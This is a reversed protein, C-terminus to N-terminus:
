HLKCGKWVHPSLQSTCMHANPKGKLCACDEHLEPLLWRRSRREVEGNKEPILTRDQVWSGSWSIDRNRSSVMIKFLGFYPLFLPIALTFMFVYLTEIVIKTWYHSNILTRLNWTASIIVWVGCEYCSFPCYWLHTIESPGELPWAPLARLRADFHDEDMIFLHLYQTPPSIRRNKLIDLDPSSDAGETVQM